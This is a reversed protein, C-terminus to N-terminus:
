PVLSTFVQSKDVPVKHARLQNFHRKIVYGDDLEILYHVQGLREVVTGFKSSLM